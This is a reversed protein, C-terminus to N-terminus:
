FGNLEMYITPILLLFGLIIFVLMMKWAWKFWKDYPIKAMGLVGILVGSVSKSCNCKSCNM